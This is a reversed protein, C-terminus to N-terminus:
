KFHILIHPNLKLVSDLNWLMNYYPESHLYEPENYNNLFFTNFTLVRMVRYSEPRIVVCPFFAQHM